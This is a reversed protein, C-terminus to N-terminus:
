IEGAWVRETTSHDEYALWLASLFDCQPNGMKSNILFESYKVKKGNPVPIVQTGKYLKRYLTTTFDKPSGRM